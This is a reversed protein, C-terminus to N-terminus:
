KEEPFKGQLVVRGYKKIFAKEYTTLHTVVWGGARQAQEWLQVDVTELFTALFENAFREGFNDRVYLFEQSIEGQGARWKEAIAQKLELETKEEM